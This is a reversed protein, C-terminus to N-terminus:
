AEICKLIIKQTNNKPKSITNAKALYTNKEPVRDQIVMTQSRLNFNRKYLSELSKRQFENIM